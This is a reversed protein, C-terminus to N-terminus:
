AEALQRLDHWFRPYSVGVVSSNRVITEGSALAGAVGLMVALRHDGYSSVNAGRLRGVGTVRM